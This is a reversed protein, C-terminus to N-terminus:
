VKTYIDLVKLANERQVEFFKDIMNVNGDSTAKYIKISESAVLQLALQIV